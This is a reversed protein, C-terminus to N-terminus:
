CSAASNEKGRRFGLDSLPLQPFHHARRILGLATNENRAVANPNAGKDLLLAVTSSSVRLALFGFNCALMLPTQNEKDLAEINAGHALLFRIMDNNGCQVAIHLLTWGRPTRWELDGGAKVWKMIQALKASEIAVMAERLVDVANKTEGEFPTTSGTDWPASSRGKSPVATATKGGSGLAALRWRRSERHTESSLRVRPAM